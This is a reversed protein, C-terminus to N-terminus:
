HKGSSRFGKRMKRYGNLKEIRSAADTALDTINSEDKELEETRDINETNEETQGEANGEVGEYYQNMKEFESEEGNEEFDDNEYGALRKSKSYSNCAFFIAMLFTIGFCTLLVYVQQQLSLNFIGNKNNKDSDDTMLGVAPQEEEKEEQSEELVFTIVYRAYEKEEDKVLITIISKGDDTIEPLLEVVVNEANAITKIKTKIEELDVLTLQKDTKVIYEYVDSKFEKDLEYGEIELSELVIGQNPEEDVIEEDIVNPPEEGELTARIVSITYTKTAGSEATVVVSFKNTGEKLTKNGTGTVKAKSSAAVAYVNISSVENPVNVTYSTNSARFGSFDNPTIGLNKLNANSDKAATTTTAAGGSNSNNNTNNSNGGSNTNGGSSAASVSITKSGFSRTTAGNSFETISGELTVTKNGVSTPTYRGSFSITKNSQYNELESSSAITVGDVKLALNWQVASGTVSITIPSNVQGTTQCSIGASAANVKGTLLFYLIIFAFGILIRKLYKSKM